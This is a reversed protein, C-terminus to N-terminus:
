HSFCLLQSEWEYAGAISQSLLSLALQRELRKIFLVEDAHIFLINETLVSKDLRNCHNKNNNLFLLKLRM